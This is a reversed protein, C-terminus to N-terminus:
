KSYIMDLAIVYDKENVFHYTGVSYLLGDTNDKMLSGIGACIQKEHKV